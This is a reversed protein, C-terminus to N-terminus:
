DLADLFETQHFSTEKGLVDGVGELATLTEQAFSRWVQDGFKEM